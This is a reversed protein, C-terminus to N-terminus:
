GLPGSGAERDGLERSTALENQKKKRLEKEVCVYSNVGASRERSTM